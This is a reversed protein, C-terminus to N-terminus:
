EEIRVLKLGIGHVDDDGEIVMQVLDELTGPITEPDWDSADLPHQGKLIEIARSRRHFLRVRQNYDYGIILAWAYGDPAKEPGEQVEGDGSAWDESAHASDVPQGIKRMAADIM